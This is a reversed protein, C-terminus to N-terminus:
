VNDETINNSPPNQGSTVLSFNVDILKQRAKLAEPNVEVPTSQQKGPHLPEIKGAAPPPPVSFKKAINHLVCCAKIINSKKNLSTEQAFGLQMLCRFRRRLSGLTARMVNHIKTHAENFRGEKDNAPESVPTLVHKSLHYGKGGVVWYPGHLENEMERGKFSSEWMEQEFTSGVCCHEVSLINGDSDCMIQSVVSTYSLSNVFARFTSREYPSTRIRFHAPALVGLVNPIGCIKEIKFAVNARADRTLPFSIFQDSMGAIVDSVTSIVVVAYDTESLGLRQLVASSSVGHAYYNLAVMVMADVPLEPNDMVVTKMRIRIADTIFAICSRTLHFMQFLAEDDFDDFCSPPEHDAAGHGLLEEQVALWVPLAFAM